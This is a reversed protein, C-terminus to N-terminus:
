RSYNVLGSGILTVLTGGSVSGAPIKSYDASAALIGGQALALAPTPVVQFRCTLMSSQMESTEAFRLLGQPQSTSTRYLTPSNNNIELLM